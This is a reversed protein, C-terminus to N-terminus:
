RTAFLVARFSIPILTRLRLTKIFTTERSTTRRRDHRCTNEGRQDTGLPPPESSKLCVAMEPRPSSIFHSKRTATTSQFVHVM